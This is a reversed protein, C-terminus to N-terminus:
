FTTGAGRLFANSLLTSQPSELGTVLSVTMNAQTSSAKAIPLSKIFRSEYSYWGGRMQTAIQHHFFDVVRSNLLALLFRPQVNQKPLIGYGGAVGGTFFLEGTEDFAFSASLALDPTFLKPLPM